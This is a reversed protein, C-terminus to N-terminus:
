ISALYAEMLRSPDSMLREKWVGLKVQGRILGRVVGINQTHGLSSVGVLCDAKFQLNLYKFNKADLLISEEGGEVGMWQGFSTSILGMTDLVNMNLSGQHPCANNKVMNIAAIRGHEVATPQIAQVHSSKDSFDLGQAVDGAAYVNDINTQLFENVIIGQDLHIGSSELFGTNSKVGTASILLDAPIPESSKLNITLPQQAKAENLSISTVQESTLITVGKSECWAKLLGGATEDMMRPVMRDGMEVVTLQVGRKLLSELIICGIFGAGMLVVKSGPLAKKVIQRADELTWCNHINNLEIGDIPPSVAQAGTALLLKEYSLETEDSLTVLSETTNIETVKESIVIINLRRFHESEHRLYTGKEEIKEGLFYPIAMRSYPPESQGSILTIQAKQDLKRITECAIVGAPGAGVVIYQM